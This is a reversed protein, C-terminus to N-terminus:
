APPGAGPDQAAARADIATNHAHAIRWGQPTRVLVTTMRTRGDTYPRGDPTAGAGSIADVAVALIVGPALERLEPEGVLGIRSRAFMGRHLAAHARRVTERGEWHMGVVNVWDVDPTMEAVYADMDHRNWAQSVRDLVAEVAARDAPAVPAAQAPASTMFAGLTLLLLAHRRM